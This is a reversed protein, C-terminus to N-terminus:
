LGNSSRESSTILFPPSLNLSPEIELDLSNECGNSCPLLDKNRFFGNHQTVKMSVEKRFGILPGGGREM